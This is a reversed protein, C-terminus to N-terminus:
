RREADGDSADPRACRVIVVPCPAHHACQQSVSGLLLGAFGGRGRSGVVLLDAGEAAEVLIQAATGEVAAQELEIGANLGVVESVAADLLAEAGRQLAGMDVQVPAAFGPPPLYPYVWAYIVKLKAGRIQAEELAWRLADLSEDSGDVGVVIGTV